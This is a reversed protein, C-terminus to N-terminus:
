KKYDINMNSLQKLIIYRNLITVLVYDYEIEKLINPDQIVIDRLSHGKKFNDVVALVNYNKFLENKKEEFVLEPM